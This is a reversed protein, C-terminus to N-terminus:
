AFDLLYNQSFAKKGKQTDGMDLAHINRKPDDSGILYINIVSFHYIRANTMTGYIMKEASQQVM